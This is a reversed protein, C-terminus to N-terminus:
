RSKRGNQPMPGSRFRGTLLGYRSPHCLPGAAHADTFRMGQAALRDINPTPIKSKPHYCGADGYGMDDVLIVFVDPHTNAQGHISLGYGLFVGLLISLYRMSNM